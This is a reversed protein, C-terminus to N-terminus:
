AELLEEPTCIISPEFGVSRCIKEISSRMAANALHKCNWTLLYDAGNTVSIAIHLADEAAKRPLPGPALLAAALASAEASAALLEVDRLIKLRAQAAAEDGAGAEQRVLESAVLHFAHRRKEWWDQTIQQHGAVVVDRSPRATLYSIVSTELYVRPKEM